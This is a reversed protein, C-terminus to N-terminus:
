SETRNTITKTPQKRRISLQMRYYPDTRNTITKTLQKHQFSALRPATLLFYTKSLVKKNYKRRVSGKKTYKQLM